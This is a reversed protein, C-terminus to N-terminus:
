EAAVTRKGLEQDIMFLATPNDGVMKLKDVIELVNAEEEVQESVFWQVFANTAHDKEHLSLNVLEGIRESVQCEHRYADQFAELPSAWETPPAEIGQLVVRGGRENIHDVFKLAHQREEETQLNMWHAMGKLNISEFYSAMSLYIYSSYFEFNLQGNLADQLKQTLM